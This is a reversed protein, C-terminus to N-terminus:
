HEKDSYRKGHESVDHDPTKDDTDTADATLDPKAKARRRADDVASGRSTAANGSCCRDPSRSLSKRHPVQHGQSNLRASIDNLFFTMDRWMM